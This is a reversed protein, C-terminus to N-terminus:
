EITQSLQLRILVVSEQFLELFVGEKGLQDPVVLPVGGFLLSTSVYPVSVPTFRIGLFSSSLLLLSIFLDLGFFSCRSLCLSSFGLGSCALRIGLLLLGTFSALSLLLFRFRTFGASVTVPLLAMRLVCRFALGLRLAARRTPAERSDVTICKGTGRAALHEGTTSARELDSLRSLRAAVRLKQM